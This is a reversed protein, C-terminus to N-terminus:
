EKKVPNKMDVSIRSTVSGYEGPYEFDISLSAKDYSLAMSKITLKEAETGTANDQIVFNYTEYKTGEGIISYTFGVELIPIKAEDSNKTVTVKGNSEDTFEVIATAMSKVGGLFAEGKYSHGAFGDLEVPLSFTVYNYNYNTKDNGADSRLRLPLSIESCSDNILIEEDSISEFYSNDSDFVQIANLEEGTAARDPIARLKGEKDIEYDIDVTVNETETTESGEKRIDVTPMTLKMTREDFVELTYSSTSSNYEYTKGVINEYIEDSSIPETVTLTYIEETVIPGGEYPVEHDEYQNKEENFVREIRSKVKFKFKYTGVENGIISYSGSPNGKDEDGENYRLTLGNENGEVMEFGFRYTTDDNDTNLWFYDTERHQRIEPFVHTENVTTDTPYDFKIGNVKPEIWEITVTGTAGGKTTVKITEEGTYMNGDKDKPASVTFFCGSVFETETGNEIEAEMETTSVSRKGTKSNEVTITPVDIKTSGTKPNIKDFVFPITADYEAVYKEGDLTASFRDALSEDAGIIDLYNDSYEVSLGTIYYDAINIKKESEQPKTEQYVFNSGSEGYVVRYLGKEDKERLNFEYGKLEFTTSDYDFSFELWNDIDVDDTFRSEVEVKSIGEESQSFEYTANGRALFDGFAVNEEYPNSTAIKSLISSFGYTPAGDIIFHPISANTVEISEIEEIDIFSSNVYMDLVSKDSNDYSFMYTQNHVKDATMYTYEESQSGEEDAVDVTHAYTAGDFSEFNTTITHDNKEVVRTASVLGENERTKIKGIIEQVKADNDANKDYSNVSLQGKELREMSSSYSANVILVGGTFVSNFRVKARGTAKNNEDYEMEITYDDTTAQSGDNFAFSYSISDPISSVGEGFECSVMFEQGGPIDWVGTEANYKFDEKHENDDLELVISVETARVGEVILEWEDSKKTPDEKSTAQIKTTGEKIAKVNGNEDITAVSPDSSTWTVSKDKGGYVSVSFSASEGEKLSRPGSIAVTQVTEPESPTEDDPQEDDPNEDDPNEDDPNEDDPNVDDPQEDDPEETVPPEESSGCSTLTSGALGCCLLLSVVLLKKKM